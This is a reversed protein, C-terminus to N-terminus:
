AVGIEGEHDGVEEAQEGKDPGLVNPRLCPVLHLVVVAGDAHELLLLALPEYVKHDFALECLQELMVSTVPGVAAIVAKFILALTAVVAIVVAATPAVIVLAVTVIVAVFVTFALAM